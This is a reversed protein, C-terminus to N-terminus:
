RDKTDRRLNVLALGTFILGAAGWVWPSHREDFLVVGWGIGTLTVIYGTFSMFVPGALRLVEFFILYAVSSIIIQGAMGIEAEGMPLVPLYLVDMAFVVPTLMLAAALLMGGALPLSKADPPRLRAALINTTAYLAPTALAMLFWPAAAADPLSARPLVILAVGALGFMVGAFRLLSFQEMRLGVAIGYTMLPVFPITLVMVGAPLHAIAAVLNVNPLAIGTLGIIFYYRLWGPALPIRQGRLRCMALVILGAVLGQWFTYAVPHVGGNTAMKTFSFALGWLSGLLLILGLPLVLPVQGAALPTIQHNQSAMVSVYALARGPALVTFSM